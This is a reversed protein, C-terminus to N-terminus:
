VFAKIWFCIGLIMLYINENVAAHETYNDWFVRVYGIEERKLIFTNYRYVRLLISLYGMELLMIITDLLNEFSFYKMYRKNRGAFM